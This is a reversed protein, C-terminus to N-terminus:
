PRLPSFRDPGFPDSLRYGASFAQDSSAAQAKALVHKTTDKMFLFNEIALADIGSSFYSRIADQPCTVLPEGAVNFSSNLLLPAPAHSGFRKLLSWFLPNKKREVVHLRIRNGPLCFERPVAQADSRVTALSNMWGCLPSSEFYTASDEEPVSIAFPRFWERHKVHDNLNEKVYPAWPSALLSRNGLARSGFEARGQFWGVIKGAQLLRITNHLKQEATDYLSFFTKSGILLERIEQSKFAPGWYYDAGVESRVPNRQHWALMAAGLANGSNGSAPPVFVKGAGIRSELDSVLLINKFLGGGLCVKEVKEKKLYETVIDAVLETCAEQISSALVSRDEQTLEGGSMGAQKLFLPSLSRQGTVGQSVFDGNLYPIVGNKGRFMGLFFDKLAPQGQLSLWQTKHEEAQPIFGILETIRSYFWALSHPFSITKLLRIRAGEGLCITGTRGDGNEDFTVILARDFPSLYFTTAAHCLHHEFTFLRCSSLGMSKLIRFDGLDSVLKSWDNMQCYASALPSFGLRRATGASRRLWGQVPQAAVAVADLERWELGGYKLCFHIAAEPLGSTQTRALKANEIAAVCKGDIMLAAATSHRFSSLGLIKMANLSCTM